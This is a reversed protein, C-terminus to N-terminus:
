ATENHNKLILEVDKFLIGNHAPKTQIRYELYQGVKNNGLRYCEGLKAKHNLIDQVVNAYTEHDVEFSKPWPNLGFIDNFYDTLEKTTM